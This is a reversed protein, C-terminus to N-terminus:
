EEEEELADWEEELADWDTSFYADAWGLFQEESWYACYYGCSPLYVWYSTEGLGGHQIRPQFGADECAQYAQEVTQFLM